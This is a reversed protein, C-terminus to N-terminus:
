YTIELVNVIVNCIISGGGSSIISNKVVWQNLAYTALFSADINLYDICNQKTMFQNSTPLAILQTIGSGQANTFSVFQNDALSGWTM